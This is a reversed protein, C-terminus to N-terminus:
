ARTLGSAPGDRNLMWLRYAWWTSYSLYGLYPVLLLASTSDVTALVSTLVLALLGYPFFALFSARLDKRRFFLFGWGANVAMLILVIIFAAQHRNTPLGSALLRYLIAYSILYYVGGIVFWVALSPSYSPLRLERFRARVGRGAVSGELIAAGACILLAHVAPTV